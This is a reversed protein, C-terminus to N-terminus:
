CSNLPYTRIKNLMAAELLVNHTKNPVPLHPDFSQEHNSLAMLEEKMLQGAM